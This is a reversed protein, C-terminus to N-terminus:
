WSTPSIASRRPSSSPVSTRSWGGWGCSTAEHEAGPTSRTTSSSRRISSTRGAAGRLGPVRGRDTETLWAYRMPTHCYCVYPVREPPRARLACAHSSAVVLDYESLDLSSFYHPMCPLLYRWRGPAHGVQRVGPLRALRSERVIRADLDAPLLERAAHFTLVDVRSAEAFVDDALAEVVRESGHYGQFWDHVLAVPRGSWPADNASM